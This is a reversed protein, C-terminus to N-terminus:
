PKIYALSGVVAAFFNMVATFSIVCCNYISMSVRENHRNGVRIYKRKMKGQRFSNIMTQMYEEGTAAGASLLYFKKNKLILDVAFTRDIMRKM